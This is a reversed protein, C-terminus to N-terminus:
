SDELLAFLNKFLLLCDTIAISLDQTFKYSYIFLFFFSFFDLLCWNNLRGRYKHDVLM